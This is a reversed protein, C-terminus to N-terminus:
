SENRSVECAQLCPMGVNYNTALATLSRKDLGERYGNRGCETSAPAPRLIAHGIM